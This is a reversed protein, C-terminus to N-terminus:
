YIKLIQFIKKIVNKLNIDDYIYFKDIKRRYLRYLNIHNSRHNMIWPKHNNFHYVVPLMRKSNQHKDLFNWKKSIEFINNGIIANFLAQDAYLKSNIKKNLNLLKKEIRSKIYKKTDILLVGCNYRNNHKNKIYLNKGSPKLPEKM